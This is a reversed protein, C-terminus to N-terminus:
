MTMELSWSPKPRKKQCHLADLTIVVGKNEFVELIQEVTRLESTKKNQYKGSTLNIGKKKCFASVIAHFNQYSELYDSLTSKLGKGDISVWDNPELFQMSWDTFAANLANFDIQMLLTRTRTYGPVGHFLHFKQEFYDKNNVFFRALGQLGTVGSMNGLIVMTLFSALDIRQGQKRRPDPITSLFHTLSKM